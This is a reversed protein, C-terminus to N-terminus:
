VAASATSFAPPLASGRTHSMRSSALTSAATALATSVNPPMSMTTLLAEAMKGIGVLSVGIL